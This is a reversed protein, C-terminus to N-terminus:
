QGEVLDWKKGEPLKEPEEKRMANFDIQHINPGRPIGNEVYRVGYIRSYYAQHAYKPPVFRGERLYPCNEADERTQWVLGCIKCKWPNKEVEVEEWEERDLGTLEMFTM